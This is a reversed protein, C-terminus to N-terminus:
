VEVSVKEIQELVHGYAKLMKRYYRVNDIVWVRSDGSAEMAEYKPLEDKMRQLHERWEEIFAHVGSLLGDPHRYDKSSFPKYDNVQDHVYVRWGHGDEVGGYEGYVQIDDRKEIQVGDVSAALAYAQMVVQQKRAEEAALAAARDTKYLTWQQTLDDMEQASLTWERPKKDSAIRRLRVHRPSINAYLEHIDFGYSEALRVVRVNEEHNLFDADNVIEPM